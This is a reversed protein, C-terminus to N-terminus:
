LKTGPVEFVESLLEEYPGEGRPLVLLLPKPFRNWWGSDFLRQVTRIRASASHGIFGFQWAETDGPLWVTFNVGRGSLLANPGGTMHYGTYEIWEAGRRIRCFYEPVASQSEYSIAAHGINKLRVKALLLSSNTEVRDSRTPPSSVFRASPLASGPPREDQVYELYTVRNTVSYGQIEIAIRLPGNSNGGGLLFWAVAGGLFVVTMLLIVKRRM